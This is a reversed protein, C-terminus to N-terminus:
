IWSVKRMSKIVKKGTKLLGCLIFMRLLLGGLLTVFGRRNVVGAFISDWCFLGELLGKAESVRGLMFLNLARAVREHRELWGYHRLDNKTIFNIVEPKALYHELVLFFDAREIRNRNTYSFQADSIRYSMLQEALVAIEKVRTLKLWMDVDSSSKFLSSGWERIEDSYIESRVMVSPCVLFNYHLLMAQLLDRFGFRAVGDKSGPAHGIVGFRSGKDDITVAESFVAGVDPNSELFAVQKEVMNPEYVDDAHFIATYKGTALQICKTFNEEAGINREQRHITIRSDIISEIVKLTDDTSANDSIHVVLNKHTQALISLLTERVTSATNYTPVCICVLPPKAPKRNSGDFVSL